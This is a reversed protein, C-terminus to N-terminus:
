RRRIRVEVVRGADASAPRTSVSYGDTSGEAGAPVLQALPVWQDLPVDLQGALDTQDAPVEDSVAEQPLSLAWRLDVPATGGGWRPQFVLRTQRAVMRTGGRLGQGRPTWIWHLDQLPQWHTLQMQATEGNRVWLVPLAGPPGGAAATGVVQDGAGASRSSTSVVRDPQGGTM